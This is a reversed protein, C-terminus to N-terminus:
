AGRAAAARVIRDRQWTLAALLESGPTSTAIM